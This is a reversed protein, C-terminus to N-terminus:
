SGGYHYPKGNMALANQAARAAVADADSQRSTSACGGAVLAFALTVGLTPSVRVILARAHRDRDSERSGVRRQFARSPRRDRETQALRRRRQPRRRGPVLVGFSRDASLPR